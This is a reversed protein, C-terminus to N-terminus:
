SPIVNFFHFVEDEDIVAVKTECTECVVPYYTEQGTIQENSLEENKSKRNKNRLKNENYM